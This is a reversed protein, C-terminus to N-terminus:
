AERKRADSAKFEAELFRRALSEDQGAALAVAGIDFLPRYWYLLTDFAGDEIAEMAQDFLNFPHHALLAEVMLPEQVSGRLRSDLEQLVLVHLRAAELGLGYGDGMGSRNTHRVVEDPEFYFSV